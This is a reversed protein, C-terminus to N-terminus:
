GLGTETLFERQMEELVNASYRLVDLEDKSLRLEIIKEIGEAGLLIPVGLCIGRIGYQGEVYAPASLIRRKGRIIVEVMEAVSAAAAYFASGTKLYSVIEGGAHRVLNQLDDLEGKPLLENIPIGAVRCYSFVPLMYDHHGALVM